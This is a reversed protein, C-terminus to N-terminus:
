VRTLIRTSCFHRILTAQIRTTLWRILIGLNSDNNLPNSNRSKLQRDTSKPQPIQPSNYTLLNMNVTVPNSNHTKLQQDGSELYPIQTVPWRMRTTLNSDVTLLSSQGSEVVRTPNLDGNVLNSNNTVPNSINTVQNSNDLESKLRRFQEPDTTSKNTVTIM